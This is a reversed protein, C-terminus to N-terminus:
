WFVIKQQPTELKNRLLYTIAEKDSGDKVKSVKSKLALLETESIDCDDERATGLVNVVSEQTFGNEICQRYALIKMSGCNFPGVVEKFFFRHEGNYEGREGICYVTHGNERGLKIDFIEHRM